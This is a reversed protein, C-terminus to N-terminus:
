IVTTSSVKFSSPIVELTGAFVPPNNPQPTNDCSITAGDVPYELAYRWIYSLKTVKITYDRGNAPNHTWQIKFSNKVAKGLSNTSVTYDSFTVNSFWNSPVANSKMKTKDATTLLVADNSTKILTNGQYIQVIDAQSYFHGYLTVLNAVSSMRVNLIDIEEKGPVTGKTTIQQRVAWNNATKTIPQCNPQPPDNPKVAAVTANNQTILAYNTYDCTIGDTNSYVTWSQKPPIVKDDEITAAYSPNDLDSSITTSFDDVFFGFKFRNLSKDISSPIVRDKMDTELLSLSTYYELDAIRRELSGIDAMTYGSPQQIEIQYQTFPTQIIKNKNRIQAYKENAVRTNLVQALTTSISKPITPYSPVILNNLRLSDAAMNPEYRKNPDVDPIGKVVNIQGDKNVFVSDVRGMYHEIDTKIESGPLPFKKDNAPNSTNGFGLAYVPNIPALASNTSPTVVNVASPRFDFYRMLDYYAGKTENVEPIEFTSVAGATSSLTDVSMSDNLAIQASNSSVYSPTIYYGGSGGTFYDFKVLLVDTPNLTLGSNPKMYLYALDYYNANQNHDVYFNDVADVVDSETGVFTTNSGIYVNKLRFVDAVGLCWPGKFTGPIGYKINAIVSNSGFSQATTVTMTTDNTITSVTLPILQKIPPNSSGTAAPPYILAEAVISAGVTLETSFKTSNGSVSNAGSTLTIKGSLYSPQIVGSSNNSPKLRVYKDRQPTKTLQTSGVTEINVGVAATIAGGDFVQGINLTLINRNADVNATLGDRSGFPIPINQPFYRSVKATANTFSANSDLKIVTSSLRSVVRRVDGGGTSNSALYVYDGEMLDTIFSTGTGNITSNSAVVAANGTVPNKAKISGSIPVVYLDNIMDVSTLNGSYPYFETPSAAISKVLIGTNAITQTQDITRYRYTTNNANKLSDVGAFFLLHDNQLSQLKAIYSNTTADLELVVDAIGKYTGNYYISKINKVNYGQNMAINFLYLQYVSNPNGAVGSEHVMSRIRATGIKTGVPTSNGTSASVSNTLFYKATDYLDVTDGTSFQFLGGVEKIRLYNGYDVSIYANNTIKTDVGKPVDIVFNRTTEVKYGSIYAMGPDVVVSFVTGESASNAPSRTTVKFKNTVYDGAADNVLTAMADGIKNYSTTKNQKFPNGESWQVLEFFEDNAAAADVSMIHLEPTLKLRNAGPANENDTGLSNDLLSPDINSDVIEELTSFGVVVNNPTQSYKEVIIIQPSVREFYGRQYIVGESVGFAYGNGVSDGTVPIKIKALYDVATLNLTGVGAPNGQSKITVTPLTTYATGLSTMTFSVIKGTSDTRIIGNAGYGIVGEISGAVAPNGSVQIAEGNSFTWNNSSSNSSSLDVALPKISLIIQNSSALTATDIAVITSNAKVLNTIQDAVNFSGSSVNVVLGSLFVSVDNNSFGSGGNTITVKQVVNNPNFITLTDGPSYASDSGSTGSNIYKVYITKLDPSTSEFGNEYNIIFSMLNSSNKAYHGVYNAPAATTGDLETDVLKVYPYPDYFTFNCGDVITGRKFINDGFKEIQNQLMSQLENLERVQVAVGPRFLIKYYDKAPDFTDGYPLISLDSALPM